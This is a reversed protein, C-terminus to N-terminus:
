THFFFWGVTGDGGAVLVRLKCGFGDLFWQLMDGPNCKRLNYVQMPNLLQSLTRMVHDGQKGGSAPNVFCLLPTVCPDLMEPHIEFCTRRSRGTSSRPGDIRESSLTHQKEGMTSIAIPNGKKETESTGSAGSEKRTEKGDDSLADKNKRRLRNGVRSKVLSGSAVISNVREKIGGLM